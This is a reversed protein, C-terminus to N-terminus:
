GFHRLFLLTAPRHQWLEGLQHLEGDPDVLSTAGLRSVDFSM